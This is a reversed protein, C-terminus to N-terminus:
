RRASGRLTRHSRCTIPAYAGGATGPDSVFCRRRIDDTLRGCADAPAANHPRATSHDADGGTKQLLAGTGPGSAVIRRFRNQEAERCSNREPTTLKIAVSPPQSFPRSGRFQDGLERCSPRFKMWPSAGMKTPTWQKSFGSM